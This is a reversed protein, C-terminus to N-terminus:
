ESEDEAEALLDLLTEIKPDEGIELGKDVCDAVLIQFYEASTYDGSKEMYNLITEKKRNIHYSPDFGADAAKEQLDNWAIEETKAEPAEVIFAWKKKVLEKAKEEPIDTPVALVAGVLNFGYNVRTLMIKM